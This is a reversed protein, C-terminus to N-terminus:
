TAADIEIIRYVQHGRQNYEFTVASSDKLWQFRSNDYANPFLTNDVDFRKKTTVDFLVPMEVDLVDGPKAYQMTSHKPQLQDEPSSEIFHIYRRHGPRVKYVAIKKSDPSWAISEPDFYNGESGDASLMTVENTGVERVALNYN